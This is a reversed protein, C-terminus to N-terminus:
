SAHAGNPVLLICSGLGCCRLGRCHLLGRRCLQRSCLLLRSCCLGPVFGGRCGRSCGTCWGLRSSGGSRSGGAACRAVGAASTCCRSGGATRCAVGAVCACCSSGLLSSPAGTCCHRARNCACCSSGLLCSPAGTCCHRARNCGLTSFHSTCYRVFCCGVAATCICARGAHRCIICKSLVLPLHLSSCGLRCRKLCLGSALLSLGHSLQLRFRLPQLVNCRLLRLLGGCTGRRRLMPWCLVADRAHRLMIQEHNKGGEKRCGHEWSGENLENGQSPRKIGGTTAYVM